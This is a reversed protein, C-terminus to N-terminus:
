SLHPSRCHFLSASAFLMCSKDARFRSTLSLAFFSLCLSLSSRCPILVFLYQNKKDARKFLSRKASNTPRHQPYNRVRRPWFLLYYNSERVAKVTTHEARAASSLNKAKGRRVLNIAAFARVRANRQRSSLQRSSRTSRYSKRTNAVGRSSRRRKQGTARAQSNSDRHRM